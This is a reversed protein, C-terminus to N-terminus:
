YLLVAVNLRTSNPRAFRALLLERQLFPRDEFLRINRKLFPQDRDPQENVGLITDARPLQM